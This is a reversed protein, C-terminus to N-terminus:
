GARASANIVAPLFRYVFSPLMPPPTASVTVLLSGQGTSDIRCQTLETPWGGVAREVTTRATECGAGPFELLQAGALAAVNAIQRLHQEAASVVVFSTLLM